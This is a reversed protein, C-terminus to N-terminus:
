PTLETPTCPARCMPCREDRELATMLAARSFAHGCPTWTADDMTLPEMTIPCISSASLVRRFSYTRPRVMPETPPAPPLLEYLRPIRPPRIASQITYMWPLTHEPNCTYVPFMDTQEWFSVAYPLRILHAELLQNLQIHGTANLRLFDACLLHISESRITQFAPDGYLVAEPRVWASYPNQSAKIWTIIRAAGDVSQHIRLM